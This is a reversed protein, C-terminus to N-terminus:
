VYLLLKCRSINFKVINPSLNLDMLLQGLFAILVALEIQPLDIHYGYFLPTRLLM